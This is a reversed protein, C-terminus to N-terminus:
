AETATTEDDESIDEWEDQWVTEGTEEGVAVAKLPDYDAKRTVYDEIMQATHLGNEPDCSDVYFAAEELGEQHLNEVTRFRKWPVNLARVGSLLNSWTEPPKGICMDELVVDRVSSNHKKLFSLFQEAPIKFRRFTIQHLSNWKIRGVIHKLSAGQAQPSISGFSLDLKTLSPCASLFKHLADTERLYNACDKLEAGVQDPGIEGTNFALILTKLKAQAMPLGSM